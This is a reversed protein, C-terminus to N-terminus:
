RATQRYEDAQTPRDTRRDAQRKTDTQSSAHYTTHVVRHRNVRVQICRVKDRVQYRTHLLSICRTTIEQQEEAMLHFFLM